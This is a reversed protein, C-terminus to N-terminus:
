NSKTMKLEKKSTKTNTNKNSQKDSKATTPTKSKSSKKEVQKQDPATNSVSKTEQKVQQTPQKEGLVIPFVAKETPIPSFLIGQIEVVVQNEGNKLEVPITVTGTHTHALSIPGFIASGANTITIVYDIHQQNSNTQPNLFDIKIKTQDGTKPSQPDTAIGVKIKGGSSLVEQQYAQANVSLPIVIVLTLTIVTFM